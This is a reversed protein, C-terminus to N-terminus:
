LLLQRVSNAGAFFSVITNITFINNLNILATEVMSFGLAVRFPKASNGMSPLFYNFYAKVNTTQINQVWDKM